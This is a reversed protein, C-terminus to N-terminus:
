GGRGLRTTFFPDFIHERVAQSMGIGDDRVSIRVLGPATCEAQIWINGGNRGEFAHILANLELNALVQGLPGPFSDLVLDEPVNTHLQIPENNFRPSLPLQVEDIFNKLDFHRRQESTQDVAVQRFKTVMDAARIVNLQMLNLGEGVGAIFDELQSRRLGGQAITIKITNHHELLTTMVALSSGLPTNLEHAIGAVMRGLSALRDAEILESQARQLSEVVQSLRANSEALEHTRAEVRRELGDAHRQLEQKKEELEAFSRALSIRTTELSQALQGLEDHRPLRIPEDLKQDALQGSMRKLYEIPRVLQWHMVVFILLLSLALGAVTRLLIQRQASQARENAQATSMSIEVSTNWFPNTAAHTMSASSASAPTAFFQGHSPIEWNQISSGSHSACLKPVSM